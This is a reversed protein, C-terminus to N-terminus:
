WPHQRWRDWGSRTTTGASTGPVSKLIREAFGGDRLGQRKRATATPDDDGQRRRKNQRGDAYNVDTFESSEKGNRYNLVHGEEADNHERAHDKRLVAIDAQHHVPSQPFYRATPMNISTGWFAHLFSPGPTKTVPILYMKGWRHVVTDSSELTYIWLEFM